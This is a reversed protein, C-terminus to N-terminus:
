LVDQWDPNRNITAKAFPCLPLIKLGHKRAYNVGAEVLQKGAGEGRLTDDVETHDIIIKDSGAKSFTMEAVQRSDREIYFSGKTETEKEQIKFEM